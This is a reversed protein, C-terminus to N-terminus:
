LMSHEPPDAFGMFGIPAYSPQMWRRIEYRFTDMGDDWAKIPYEDKESGILKDEEKYAYRDFEETTRIPNGADLRSRDPPHALSDKNFFVKRRVLVERCSEIGPLVEKDANQVPLDLKQLTKNIEPRHDAVVWRLSSGQPKFKMLNAVKEKMQDIDLGTHYVEKYLYLKSRDRPGCYLHFVFPHRSGHDCSASWEWDPQIDIDAEDVEHISADFEPYVVGEPSCWEGYLGRRLMVGSLTRKTDEIYNRGTDTWSEGDHFEPNDELSVYHLELNSDPRLARAQIWHRKRSPNCDGIIMSQNGYPIKWFGHRSELQRTALIEWHEQRGQEVQNYFVIDYEGGLVKDPNRDMGAFFMRAGNKYILTTPKEEGGYGRLIPNHPHESFGYRLIKDRFQPILSDRVSAYTPRVVIAYMGPNLCLLRHIMM